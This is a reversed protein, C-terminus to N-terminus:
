ARGELIASVAEADELDVRPTGLDRSIWPLPGAVPLPRSAALQHALLESAVRGM